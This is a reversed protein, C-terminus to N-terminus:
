PAATQPDSLRSFANCGETGPNPAIRWSGDIKQFFAELTYEGQPVSGVIVMRVNTADLYDVNQLRVYSIQQLSQGLQNASEVGAAIFDEEPCRTHYEETFSPYLEPWQGNPLAEVTRRALADIAVDDETKPVFVIPVETAEPDSATDDDDGGGGSLLVVVIVFTAIGIAAIIAGTLVEPRRWIPTGGGEREKRRRDARSEPM